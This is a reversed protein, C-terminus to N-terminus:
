EPLRLRATQKVVRQAADDQPIQALDGGAIVGLNGVLQMQGAFREGTIDVEQLLKGGM